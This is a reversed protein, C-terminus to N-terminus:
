HTMWNTGAARLGQLLAQEKATMEGPRSVAKTLAQQMAAPDRLAEALALDRRNQGVMALKDWAMKTLSGGPLAQAGAAMMDSATNSGGGATASKKVRQVIGQRRLAELTQNLGGTAQPSLQNALDPGRARDLARGLGAETIAPVDGHPDIATGRVRGTESDIFSERVRGAAKSADVGRSSTAYGGKVTDWAGRTTDNLIDDIEAILSHVAASDRPAAQYANQPIAKGRENLNARIQQLHAPSFDEGNREIDGLINDLVGRVAPNSAEPSRLAQQLHPVFNEMRGAFVEPDAQQAAAEWNRTWEASRDGRRQALQGAEDTSGMVKRYVAEGQRQDFPYFEAGNRARAGAEMRALGPHEAVAASTLPIEPKGSTHAQLRQMVAPDPGVVEQLERAARTYAGKPMLYEWGKRAARGALPLAGGFAAGAGMNALRSEDSTVPALAGGAAGALASTAAIRALGGGVAGPIAVQPLAEGAFQLAKGGTTQGALAEDRERKDRVEEDTVGPGIGAMGGLQKAGQWASDFGAGLNALAKEGWGMGESARRAIEDPDSAQMQPAAPAPARMALQRQVLAKLEPANPDMDDPINRLVIGSRTKLDYPM